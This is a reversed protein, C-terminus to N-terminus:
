RRMKKPILIGLIGIPAKVQEKMMELPVDINCGLLTFAITGITILKSAQM